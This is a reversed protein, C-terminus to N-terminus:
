PIAELIGVNVPASNGYYRYEFRLGITENVMFTSGGIELSHWGSAELVPVIRSKWVSYKVKYSSM